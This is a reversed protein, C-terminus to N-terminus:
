PIHVALYLRPFCPSSYTKKLNIYDYASDYNPMFISFTVM